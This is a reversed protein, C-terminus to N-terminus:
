NLELCNQNILLTELNWLKIQQVSQSSVKDGIARPLYGPDTPDFTLNQFSEVVGKNKDTDNV